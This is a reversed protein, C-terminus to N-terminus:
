TAALVATNLWFREFSRVAAIFADLGAPKAVYASAGARYSDVMDPEATSSTFVVVPINKLEAEGKIFRLVERGDLGPLNLDLVIMDPKPAQAFDAERRLFAVANAGDEVHHVRSLTSSEALVGRMLRADGPNDEVLLVEIVRRIRRSM